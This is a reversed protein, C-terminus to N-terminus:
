QFAMDIHFITNGSAVYIINQEPYAVVSSILELKSQDFAQYSDIFTGAVTTEYITRAGRSILFFGPAFASDNLAFGETRVVHPESGENFGSFAFPAESGSIYSKMVGDAYLVFVVGDSSITFDVVNRLNPRATGSFYERPASVYSSGSPDYRWIQGGESDLIYLKRDWITLSIPNQWDDANLVRQVDCNLIIQPECRLLTGNADLMALDGSYRDFAIDAIQGITYGEYTAGLRMRSVPDQRLAQKGDDSLSVHYVLDNRDDLAYLDTGQLRLRSIAANEFNTLPVAERRKVKNITDILAQAERQMNNVFPDDPRMIDCADAVQLTANWASVTSRRNSSDISRALNSTEQLKGLCQEFETEGLNSVWSVVVISVIILPILLVTLILTGSSARRSPATAPLPFFRQFLAGLSLFFGATRGALRALGWGLLSGFDNRRPLQWNPNDAELQMRAEGLRMQVEHSSEGPAALVPAEYEPPVLEVLMLQCQFRITRRLGDLVKGIDNELLTSTLREAPIDALSADSLVLRSGANVGYRVMAVEPEPLLGLPVSFLPAEESLDDPFTLTLGATQLASIVPGARAVVMDDEHLVAAIVSTEFQQKGIAAHELNHEYLNRNIQQFMSRLALAVSGGMSFYREAALQALQEYFTTPAISGSPLILIFFTDGERGRAATTPAVEVLAGPPNVNIVRGGVIYLHGVLAELDFAM